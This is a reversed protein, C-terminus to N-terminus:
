KGTTPTISPQQLKSIKNNQDLDILSELQNSNNIETIISGIKSKIQLITTNNANNFSIVRWWLIGLAVIVIIILTFNFIPFFYTEGEGGRM